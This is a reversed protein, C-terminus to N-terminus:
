PSRPRWRLRLDANDSLEASLGESLLIEGGSHSRNGRLVLGAGGGRALVVVGGSLRNDLVRLHDVRYPQPDKDVDAWVFISGGSISGHGDGTVTNDEITVERIDRTRYIMIPQNVTNGKVTWGRVRTGTNDMLIGEGDNVFYKPAWGIRHKEVQVQNGEVRIDEGAVHIGRNEYTSSGGVRREGTPYVWGIKGEQDRRVNGSVLLGRGAALIGVRKTQFLWNDRVAIGPRFFGPATEPTAYWSGGVWNIWIPYGETHAFVAQGPDPLEEVSAPDRPRALIRYGPQAFDDTPEDNIRCDAVLVNARACIGIVRDFRSPWRQWPHQWAHPISPDPTACNNIRTGFVLFDEGEARNPDVGDFRIGVRNLDLHVIGVRGDQGPRALRIKRFATDVPTGTGEASFRYAPFELRAPFPGFGTRADGTPADGRLVVGAPLTLSNRLRYLGPPFYVVGGGAASARAIAAVVRADEDGAEASVPFVRNWALAATWPHAEAGYRAAVPDNTPPAGQVLGAAVAALLLALFTERKSM